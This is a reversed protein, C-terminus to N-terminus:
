RPHKTCALSAISVCQAGAKILEKALSTTTAGTTIVDDIVLVHKGAIREPVTVSFLGEVNDFREMRSLHTQSTKFISRSVAQTEVAIGTVESIGRALLESQNYGRQRSRKKALPIPVLLDIGQFFGEQQFEKAMMRGFFIATEPHDLYKLRLVPRKAISGVHYFYLSACREVPFMGWFRRALLNDTPSKAFGTRPLSINCQICLEEETPTLRQGCICCFRPSLLDLLRGFFSIRPPQNAGGPLDKM